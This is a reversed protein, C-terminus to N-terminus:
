EFNFGESKNAESTNNGICVGNMRQEVPINCSCQELQPFVIFTVKDEKESGM